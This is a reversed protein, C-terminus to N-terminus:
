CAGKTYADHPRRRGVCHLFWDHCLRLPFFTVRFGFLAIFGYSGYNFFRRFGYADTLGRRYRYDLRLSYPRVVREDHRVEVQTSL